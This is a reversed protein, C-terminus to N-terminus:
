VVPVKNLLLTKVPTILTLISILDWSSRPPGLDLSLTRILSLFPRVSVCPVFASQALCGCALSHRPSGAPQWWSRLPPPTRFGRQCTSKLSRAKQVTLSYNETTKLEGAQPLKNHCGQSVLLVVIENIKYFGDTKRKRKKSLHKIM